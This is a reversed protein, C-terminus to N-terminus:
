RDRWRMKKRISDMSRISALNRRVFEPLSSLFSRLNSIPQFDDGQRVPGVALGNLIEFKGGGDVRIIAVFVGNRTVAFLNVSTKGPKPKVRRDGPIPPASVFIHNSVDDWRMANAAGISFLM